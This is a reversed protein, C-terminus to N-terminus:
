RLLVMKKTEVFDGAEIKYIYTGSSLNSGDFDVEYEGPQLEGEYLTMIEKGSLDYVILRVYNSKPMQFKIHTSPNFPNPFNQFLYFDDPVNQNVTNIGVTGGNTTKLITGNAGVIYGTQENIFYVGSLHSTTGSMQQMWNIGGNTTKVIYGNDDVGYAIQDNILSLDGSSTAVVSILNWNLGGNTTKSIGGTGYVLGTDSNVFSVSSLSGLLFNGQRTWNLGGNTTKLVPNYVPTGVVYGTNADLFFLSNFAQAFPEPHDLDFWSEGSDTSKLIVGSESAIYGTYFDIFQIHTLNYGDSIDTIEYWDLGCNVSKIITRNSGSALINNSDSFCVSLLENTTPSSISDWSVGKDSTRLIKGFVGVCIGTEANLFTVSFLTNDFNSNQQFWGSQANSYNVFSM